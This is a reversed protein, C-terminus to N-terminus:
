WALLARATRQAAHTCASSPAAHRPRDSPSEHGPHGPGCAAESRGVSRADQPPPGKGDLTQLLGRHLRRTGQPAPRSATFGACVAASTTRERTTDTHATSRVLQTGTSESPRKGPDLLVTSKARNAFPRWRSTYGSAHVLIVTPPPLPRLARSDSGTVLGTVLVYRCTEPRTVVASVGRGARGLVHLSPPLGSSLASVATPTCM